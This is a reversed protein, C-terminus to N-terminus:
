PQQEQEAPPEPERLANRLGRLITTANWGPRSRPDRLFATLEDAYTNVRMLTSEAKAARALAADGTMSVLELLQQLSDRQQEADALATELHYRSEELESVRHAILAEVAAQRAETVTLTCAGARIRSADTHVYAMRGCVPCVMLSRLEHETLQQTTM